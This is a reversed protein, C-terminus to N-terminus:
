KQEQTKGSQSRLSDAFEQWLEDVTKGTIDKFMEVKFKGERLPQNLKKVLEKDYKKEAWELFIATTKYSDRYSARDPNIRPRRANPEFCCIRIYDAIGEVLWGPKSFGPQAEPYAQVIHTLEHIIMGWDNTNSRVYNASVSISARSTGAVGRMNERFRIKITDYPKFGESDLLKVIKPYWEASMEGSKFAWDKLDPTETADVSITAILKGESNTSNYVRTLSENDAAVLFSELIIGTLLAALM